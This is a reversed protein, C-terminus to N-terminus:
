CEIADGTPNPSVFRLSKSLLCAQLDEAHDHTNSLRQAWADDANGMLVTFGLLAAALLAATTCFTLLICTYLLLLGDRGAAGYRDTGAASVARQTAGTDLQAAATFGLLAVGMSLLGAALAVVSEWLVVETLLIAPEVILWLSIGLIM